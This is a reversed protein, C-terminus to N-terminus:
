EPETNIQKLLEIRQSLHLLQCKKYSANATQSDPMLSLLQWRCDQETYLSFSQRSKNFLRLSDKQGTVSAKEELKFLHNNEWLTLESTKLHIQQDLCQMFEIKKLKTQDCIETAMAQCCLLSLLLVIKKM